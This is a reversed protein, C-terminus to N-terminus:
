NFDKKKELLCRFCVEDSEELVGVQAGDMGLADGDHGLVNLERAANTALTGLRM